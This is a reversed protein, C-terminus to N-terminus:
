RTSVVTKLSGAEVGITVTVEGPLLRAAPSRPVFASAIAEGSGRFFFPPAQGLTVSRPMAAAKGGVVAFRGDPTMLVRAGKFTVEDGTRADDARTGKKTPAKVPASKPEKPKASADVLRAAVKAADKAQAGQRLLAFAIPAHSKDDVLVGARVVNEDVLATAVAQPLLRAAGAIALEPLAIPFGMAGAERVKSLVLPDGVKNLAPTASVTGIMGPAVLSLEEGFATTVSPEEPKSVASLLTPAQGVRVDVERSRALAFSQLAESMGAAVILKKQDPAVSEGSLAADVLDIGRLFSLYALEKPAYVARFPAGGLDPVEGAGSELAADLSKFAADPSVAEGLALDIALARDDGGLRIAVHPLTLVGPATVRFGQETLRAEMRTALARRDRAPVLARVTVLAPLSKVIKVAAPFTSDDSAQKARLAIEDVRSRAEKNLGVVAFAIPQSAEIADSGLLESLGTHEALEALPTLDLRAGRLDVAARLAATKPLIAPTQRPVAAPAAPKAVVTATPTAAPGETAAPAGGCQTLAPLLAMLPAAFRRFSM